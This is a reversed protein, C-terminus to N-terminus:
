RSFQRLRETVYEADPPGCHAPIILENVRAAGMITRIDRSPRGDKQELWLISLQTCEGKKDLTRRLTEVDDESDFLTGSVNNAEITYTNYDNRVRTDRARYISANKKGDKLMRGRASTLDWAVAQDERLVGEIMHWAMSLSGSVRKKSTDTPVRIELLDPANWRVVLVIRKDEIEFERLIKRNSEHQVVGTPREFQLQGYIKLLWDSPKKDPSWQRFDSYLYKNEALRFSPFKVRSEWGAGFLKTGVAGFTVNSALKKSVVYYFVHQNGNEEADRVLDYAREIPLAHSNLADALNSEILDKKTAASLRVDANGEASRLLTKIQDITCFHDILKFLEERNALAM